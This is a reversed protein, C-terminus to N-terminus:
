PDKGQLIKILKETDISAGSVICAIKGSGAEGAISAAVSVAGAGEVIIKNREAMLRIASVTDALGAIISGDLLRKGLDWMEPFLIGSGASEVFSTTYDTEVDKGAEFSAALSAGTEPQCGLIRMDPSLGRLASAVGCALGGGGWPIVVTDVDPLDEIIELGITGQGAMVNSDSFPHILLGKDDYNSPDLFQKFATNIDDIDKFDVLKVRAGLREMNEVKIKAMTNPIYVTCDVGMKKAAYAVGQGHNGGSMTWVGHKLESPKAAKIANTAGRIKFSGIPQLNELKLYIEAPADDVNLKVLPTRVISDRIRQRAARIEEIPIPDYKKM